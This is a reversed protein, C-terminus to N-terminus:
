HGHRLREWLERLQAWLPPTIIPSAAWRTPGNERETFCLKAGDLICGPHMARWIIAPPETPVHRFVALLERRSNIQAVWLVPGTSVKLRHDEADGDLWAAADTISVTRALIRNRKM